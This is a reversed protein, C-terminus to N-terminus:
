INHDVPETLKDRLKFVSKSVYKVSTIGLNIKLPLESRRQKITGYVKQLKDLLDGCKGDVIL